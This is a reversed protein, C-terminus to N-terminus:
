RNEVVTELKTERFFVLQFAEARHVGAQYGRYTALTEVAGVSRADPFAYIESSYLLLAGKKSDMFDSVDIYVNPTFAPQIQGFSWDTSAPMECFYLENVVGTPKPRCAVMCCEAVLRHDRHIDSINHTYVITPKIQNIIEEIAALTSAYELRCDSFEKIIPKAGLQICSDHFARTRHQWVNEQGPRDGRCLSVVYVETKESLKAITGAPGYAEDDPHAFIFLVTM